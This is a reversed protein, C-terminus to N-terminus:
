AAGRFSQYAAARERADLVGAFPTVQRLERAHESPDLMRSAIHAIPLELIRNWEGLLAAADPNVDLMTAINSRAIALVHEPRSALKAAIAEHLALSRADERTMPPGVFPYIALGGAHAVRELTSWVPSKTGSEYAAITPQSTGASLALQAQTWGVVSRVTKIPNVIRTYGFLYSMGNVRM